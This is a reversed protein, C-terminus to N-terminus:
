GINEQNIGRSEMYNSSLEQFKEWKKDEKEKVIKPRKDEIAKFEGPLLDCLVSPNEKFYSLVKDWEQQSATSSCSSQKSQMFSEEKFAKIFEKKDQKKDLQQARVLSNYIKSADLLSHQLETGNALM